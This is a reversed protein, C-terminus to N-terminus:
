ILYDEVRCCQSDAVVALCMFLPEVFSMSIVYETQGYVIIFIINSCSLYHVPLYHNAVPVTMSLTSSTVGGGGSQILLLHVMGTCM